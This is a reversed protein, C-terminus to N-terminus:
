CTGARDRANQSHDAATERSAGLDASCGGAFAGPLQGDWRKWGNIDPAFFMCQPCSNKVGSRGNHQSLNPCYAHIIPGFSCKPCMYSRRQTHRIQDAESMAALANDADSVRRILSQVEASSGELLQQESFVTKCGVHCCRIASSKSPDELVDSYHATILADLCGRHIRHGNAACEVFQAEAQDACESLCISCIRNNRRVHDLSPRPQAPRPLVRPPARDRAGQEGQLLVPHGTGPGPLVRLDQLLLRLANEVHLRSVGGSVRNFARLIANIEPINLGNQSRYKGASARLVREVSMEAHITPFISRIADM